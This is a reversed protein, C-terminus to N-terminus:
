ARKREPSSGSIEEHLGHAEERLVLRREAQKRVFKDRVVKAGKLEVLSIGLKSYHLIGWEVFWTALYGPNRDERRAIAELAERDVPTLCLNIRETKPAKERSRKM